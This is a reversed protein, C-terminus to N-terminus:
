KQSDIPAPIPAASKPAAGPQMPAESGSAGVTDFANARNVEAREASEQSAKMQQYMRAAESLRKQNLDTELLEIIRQKIQDDEDNVSQELSYAKEQAQELKDLAELSNTADTDSMSEKGFDSQAKAMEAQAQKLQRNNDEQQRVLELVGPDNTFANAFWPLLVIPKLTNTEPALGMGNTTALAAEIDTLTLQNTAANTLENMALPAPIPAAVTPPGYNTPPPIPVVPEPVPVAIPAPMQDVQGHGPTASLVLAFMVGVCAFTKM